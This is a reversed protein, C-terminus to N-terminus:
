LFKRAIIKMIKRVLGCKLENIPTVREFDLVEKLTYKLRKFPSRFVPVGIFECDADSPEKEKSIRSSGDSISDGTWFDYVDTMSAPKLGKQNVAYDLIQELLLPIMAMSPNTHAYVIAPIGEGVLFDIARRYYQVVRHADCDRGQFFLEPAVPFVPIELVKPYGEGTSVYSPFGMYDYSFESSYKYGEEALAKTLGKNWRGLPSAFGITDINLNQFFLKAKRINYLNSRYDSYTYHYYAHSQIDIGLDRCQLIRDTGKSFSFANFFITIANRYKKFLPLYADFSEPTYEDADIRLCFIDSKWSRDAGHKHLSPRDVVEEIVRLDKPGFEKLTRNIKYQM